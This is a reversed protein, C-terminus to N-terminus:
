THTGRNGASLVYPGSGDGLAARGRQFTAEVSKEIETISITLSELCTGCFSM